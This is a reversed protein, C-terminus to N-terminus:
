ELLIVKAAKNDMNPMTMGVPAGIYTPDSVIYKEGNLMIYDGEVAENFHVATALHGPYYVLICRLGLLDRVFRTFLISRDECDCYPYYLSEEAFFARDCGWVKDDYEYEFGTQVYNLLMNVAQLKTKGSIANELDPYIQEKVSTQMPKNAYLAWRSCENTGIMSTPYTDYFDMLNKNSTMTTSLKPYAKSSRTCVPSQKFSFVPETNIILSMEKEQPFKINCINLTEPQGNFVYYSDGDITYYIKRYIVYKSAYLMYLKSNDRALRMKYGSQCYLYAMLLTADNTAAGCISTAVDNLLILYAWDCLKHEERLNLCDFLLGDYNKNSMANWHKSIENESVGSLKHHKSKDFHVIDTTGFYSFSLIPVQPEPEVVPVVPEPQPIPEPAPNIDIIPVQKPKPKPKTEIDEEKPYVIPPIPKVNDELPTIGKFAQFETWAKKIMNAYEDNIKKRFNDYDQNRKRVFTEYSQSHQRKFEEFSNQASCKTTMACFFLFLSIFMLIRKTM